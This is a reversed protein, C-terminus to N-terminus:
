NMWDFLPDGKSDNDSIAAPANDLISSPETNLIDDPENDSVDASDNDFGNNLQREEECKKSCYYPGDGPIGCTFCWQKRKTKKVEKTWQAYVQESVERCGKESEELKYNLMNHEVQLGDFETSLKENAEVLHKNAETLEALEEEITKLQNAMSSDKAMQENLETIEAKAKELEDNLETVKKESMQETLTAIQANAKNLEEAMETMKKKSEMLELEAKRAAVYKDKLKVFTTKLHTNENTLVIVKECYFKRQKILDDKMTKIKVDLKAANLFDVLTQNLSNRMSATMRALNNDVASKCMNSMEPSLKLNWSSENFNVTKTKQTPTPAPKQQTFHTPNKVLKSPTTCRLKPFQSLPTFDPTKQATKSPTFTSNKHTSKSPQFSSLKTVSISPSLEPFPHVSSSPSFNFTAQKSKPSTIGNQARINATSNIPHTLNQPIKPYNPPIPIKFATDSFGNFHVSSLPETKVIIPAHSMRQIKSPIVDNQLMNRKQGAM